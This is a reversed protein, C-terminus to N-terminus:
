CRRPGGSWARTRSAPPCWSWSRSYTHPTALTPWWASGPRGRNRHGGARRAPARGGRCRNRGSLDAAFRSPPFASFSSALIADPPSRLDLETFLERKLELDEPACEQVYGATQVAEALTDHVTVRHAIETAPEPLLEFRELQALRAALERKADQRRSPDPDWLRVTLGAATSVITWGVGISRAGVM